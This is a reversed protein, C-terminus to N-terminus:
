LSVILGLAKKVYGNTDLKENALKSMAKNIESEKYGLAALVEIAEDYEPTTLVVESVKDKFKGQLDLIIQGAAKPGIGPIKKLYTTNKSEIANIISQVDGTALIGIATKCGIGKVLILKLFLEKEEKKEFGFLFLGDEKVQQYIYVTKEEGKKYRYPNSVYVFYGIGQNDIVIHDSGMDVILGKIYSYM